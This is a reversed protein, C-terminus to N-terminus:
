PHVTVICIPRSLAGLDLMSAVRLMISGCLVMGSVSPTHVVLHALFPWVGKFSMRKEAKQSYYFTINIKIWKNDLILSYM